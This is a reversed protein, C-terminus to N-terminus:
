VEFTQSRFEILANNLDMLEKERPILMDRLAPFLTKPAQNSVRDGHAGTINQLWKIEHVLVEVRAEAQAITYKQKM